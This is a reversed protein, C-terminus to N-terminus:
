RRKRGVLVLVEWLIPQEPGPWHQALAQLQPRNLRPGRSAQAGIAKIQRLLEWAGRNPRSFRLPRAQLLELQEAAQTILLAAQPLPLGTFPVSAGEAARRWLQLSGACPVALALVGAPALAACWRQLQLQPQELWQLAFSSALLAAGDLADPLGDNLDWQRQPPPPVHHQEEALLAACSDLRLLTKGGVRAEIARALLGSGAGLDARPGPPLQAALPQLQRALRQAVAAQLPAQREYAAAQRGFCRQVQQSFPAAGLGSAPANSCAM